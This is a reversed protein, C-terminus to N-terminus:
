KPVKLVAGGGYDTFYVDTDTVALARISNWGHSLTEVSGGAVPLRYVAHLDAFYLTQGDTHLDVVQVTGDALLALELPEGGSRPARYVAVNDVYYVYAQDVAVRALGSLYSSLEFHGVHSSGSVPARGLYGTDPLKATYNANWMANLWFVEGDFAAVDETGSNYRGAAIMSLSGGDVHVRFVSNYGTTFYAFTGDSTVRGVGNGIGNALTKRDGGAKTARALHGSPADNLCWYVNTDDIAIDHPWPENQAIPEPSGGSRPLRMISGAAALTSFYVSDGDAALGFPATVSAVM